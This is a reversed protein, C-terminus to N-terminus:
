RIPEGNKLEIRIEDIPNGRKTSFRLGELGTDRDLVYAGRYGEDAIKNIAYYEVTFTGANKKDEFIQVVISSENCYEQRIRKVFELLYQKNINEPKIVIFISLSKDEITSNRISFLFKYKGGVKGSTKCKKPPPSKKETTQAVTVKSAGGLVFLAIILSIHIYKM